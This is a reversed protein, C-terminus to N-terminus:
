VRGGHASRGGTGSGRRGGFHDPGSDYGAAGSHSVGGALPVGHQLSPMTKSLVARRRRQEGGVRSHAEAARPYGTAVLVQQVADALCPTTLLSGRGHQERLGTLIAATLDATRWDEGTLGHVSFDEGLGAAVAMGISRALKTARLWETRGDRKRVQFGTSRKM